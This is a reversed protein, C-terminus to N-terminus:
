VHVGLLADLLDDVFVGDDKEHLAVRLKRHAAERAARHLDQFGAADILELGDVHELVVFDALADLFERVPGRNRLEVHLAFEDATRVDHHLHILVAFQLLQERRSLGGNQRKAGSRRRARRRDNRAPKFGSKEANRAPAGERMAIAGGTGRSRWRVGREM